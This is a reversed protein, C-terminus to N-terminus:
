THFLSSAFWAGGGGVLGEVDGGVSSVVVDDGGGMWCPCCCEGGVSHGKPKPPELCPGLNDFRWQM